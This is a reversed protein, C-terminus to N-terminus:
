ESYKSNIINILNEVGNESNMKEAILLANAKYDSNQLVSNILGSLKKPKFKNILCYGPSIGLNKLHKGWFKQELITYLIISPIGLATATHTTGAGGHHIVAKCKPFITKHPGKELFFIKESPVFGCEKWFESQIIARANTM